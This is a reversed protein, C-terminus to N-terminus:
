KITELHKLFKRDLSDILSSISKSKINVLTSKLNITSQLNNLRTELILNSIDILNRNLNQQINYFNQNVISNSELESESQAKSNM